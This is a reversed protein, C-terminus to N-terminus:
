KQSFLKLAEDGPTVESSKYRASYHMPVLRNVRANLAITAADAATLHSRDIARQGEDSMFVTECYLTDADSALTIANEINQGTPALDTIYALKQGESIRVLPLLEYVTSEGKDTKIVTMSPLKQWIAQKLDNLWAGPSLEMRELESTIVNIHFEEEIAYAMCPVRHNMEVARVNFAPESHIIGNFESQGSDDRRFNDRARFATHKLMNGCLETVHIEIPYNTILDWTYGNLKGQVRDAMGEPGYVNLPRDRMLCARLLRDFAAFHDIHTHSIFLDTTKFIQGQSLKSIDGCDFMLARKQKFLDVYLM